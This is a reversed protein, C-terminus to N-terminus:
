KIRAVSAVYLVLKYEGAPLFIYNFLAGTLPLNVVTMNGTFPCPHIVNSSYQEVEQRVLDMVASGLTNNYYSCVDVNLDILFKQFGNRFRYYLIVHLHILDVSKKLDCIWTFAKVKRTIFTLKCIPKPCYDLNVKCHVRDFYVHKM